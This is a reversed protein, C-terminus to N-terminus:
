ERESATKHTFHCFRKLQPIKFLNNNERNHKSHGCCCINMADCILFFCCLLDSVSPKTLHVKQTKNSRRMEDWKLRMEWRERMDGSMMLLSSLIERNIKSMIFVARSHHLNHPHHHHHHQNKKSIEVWVRLTTFKVFFNREYCMMELSKLREDNNNNNNSTSLFSSSPIFNWM